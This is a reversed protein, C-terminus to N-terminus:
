QDHDTGVPEAHRRGLGRCALLKVDIGLTTLASLNLTSNAGTAEFTTNDTETYSTLNPLTLAGGSQAYLSSGNVNTLGALSYSGGTVTLNGGGTLSSWQSTAITGTGDLTIQIGSFTTLSSALVTGSDTVM